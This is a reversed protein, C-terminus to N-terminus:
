LPDKPEMSQQGEEYGDMHGAKYGDEQGLKFGDENGVDYADQEFSERCKECPEIGYVTGSPTTHESSDLATGCRDCTFEFKFEVSVPINYSPM